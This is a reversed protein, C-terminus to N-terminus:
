SELKEEYSLEQNKSTLDITLKKHDQGNEVQVLEGSQNEEEGRSRNQVVKIELHHNMDEGKRLSTYFLQDIRNLDLRHLDNMLSEKEREMRGNSFRVIEDCIHKQDISILEEIIKREYSPYFM